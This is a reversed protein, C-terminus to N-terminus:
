KMMEIQGNKMVMKVELLSTKIDAKMDGEFVVIDAFSNAKIVGIQDKRDLAQTSNPM